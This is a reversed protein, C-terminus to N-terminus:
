GLWDASGPELYTMEFRPSAGHTFCFTEPIPEVLGGQMGGIVVLRAHRKFARHRAKEVNGRAQALGGGSDQGPEPAAAHM